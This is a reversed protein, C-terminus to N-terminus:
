INELSIPKMLEVNGEDSISSPFYGAINMIKPLHLVKEEQFLNEFHQVGAKAISDFGEVIIGHDDEIKWISNINKRNNAFKHSFLPIIMGMLFVFLGVRRDQRM